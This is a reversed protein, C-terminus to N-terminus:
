KQKKAVWKKFEDDKLGAIEEIYSDKMFSEPNAKFIKKVLKLGAIMRHTTDKDTPHQISYRSFGAIYYLLLQPNNEVFKLYREDISITFDPTGTAWQMLFAGADKIRADNGKIPATELWNVCKVIDDNHRTYDSKETFQYNQPVEFTQATLGHANLLLIAALLVLIKNM